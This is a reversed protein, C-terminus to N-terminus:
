LSYFEISVHYHTCLFLKNSVVKKSQIEIQPDLFIPSLNQSNINENLQIDDLTNYENMKLTSKTDEEWLLCLIWKCRVFLSLLM